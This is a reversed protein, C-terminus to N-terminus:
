IQYRGPNDVWQFGFINRNVDSEDLLVSLLIFKLLLTSKGPKRNGGKNRRKEWRGNDDQETRFFKMAALRGGKLVVQIMM